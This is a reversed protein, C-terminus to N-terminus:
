IEKKRCNKTSDTLLFAEWSNKGFSTLLGSIPLTLGYIGYFVRFVSTVDLADGFSGLNVEM